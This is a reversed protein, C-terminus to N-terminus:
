GPEQFDRRPKDYGKSGSSGSNSRGNQHNGTAIAEIFTSAASQIAIRGVIALMALGVRNKFGGGVLFGAAAAIALSSLPSERVYEGVDDRRGGHQRAASDASTKM